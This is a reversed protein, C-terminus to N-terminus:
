KLQNFLDDVENNTQIKRSEKKIEKLRIISKQYVKEFEKDFSDIDKIQDEIIKIDRKLKNFKDYQEETFKKQHEELKKYIDIKKRSEIILEDLLKKSNKCQININNLIDYLEKLLLDEMSFLYNNYRDISEQIKKELVKGQLVEKISTKGIRMEFVTTNKTSYGGKYRMDPSGNLCKPGTYVQKTIYKYNRVEIALQIGSRQEKQIEKISLPLVKRLIHWDFDQFFLDKIKQDFCTINKILSFISSQYYDRRHGATDIPLGTDKHISRNKNFGYEDYRTGTVIHIWDEDFGNDDYECM